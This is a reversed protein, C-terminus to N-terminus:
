FQASELSDGRATFAILEIMMCLRVTLYESPISLFDIEDTWRRRTQAVISTACM